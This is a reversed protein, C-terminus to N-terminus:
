MGRIVQTFENVADYQDAMRSYQALLALDLDPLLASTTKEYGEERLWYVSIM